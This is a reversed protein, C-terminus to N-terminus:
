DCKRGWVQSFVRLIVTTAYDRAETIGAFRIGREDDDGIRMVSDKLRGKVIHGFRHFAPSLHQLYAERSCTVSRSSKRQVVNSHNLADRKKMRAADGM